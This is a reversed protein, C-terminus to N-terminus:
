YCTYVKITITWLEQKRERTICDAVCIQAVLYSM